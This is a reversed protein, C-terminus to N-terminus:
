SEGREGWVKENIEVLSLMLWQAIVIQVYRKPSGCQYVEKIVSCKLLRLVPGVSEQDISFYLSRM